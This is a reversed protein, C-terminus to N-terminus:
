CNPSGTSTSVNTERNGCCAVESRRKIQSAGRVIERRAAIQFWRLPFLGGLERVGHPMLEYPLMSGSLVFSPMIFFVAIFIAQASTRALTSVFAGYVHWIDRWQPDGSRCLRPDSESRRSAGSM